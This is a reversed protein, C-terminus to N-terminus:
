DRNSHPNETFLLNVDVGLAEAVKVLTRLTLNTQASEIKQVHRPALGALQALQEQTLLRESRLAKVRVAIQYLVRQHTSSSEVM